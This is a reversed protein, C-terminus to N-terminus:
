TGFEQLRRRSSASFRGFVSVTREGMFPARSAEAAAPGLLSCHRSTELTGSCEDYSRSLGAASREGLERQKGSAGKGAALEHLWNPLHRLWFRSGPRSKNPRLINM